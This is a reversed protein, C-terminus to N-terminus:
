VASHAKPRTSACDLLPGLLEPHSELFNLTPKAAGFMFPNDSLAERYRRMLPHDEGSRATVGLVIDLKNRVAARIDSATNSHIAFGRRALLAHNILYGQFPQRYTEAISM